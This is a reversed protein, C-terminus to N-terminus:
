DDEQEDCVLHPGKRLSVGLHEALLRTEARRDDDWGSLKEDTKKCTDFAGKTKDIHEELKDELEKIRKFIRFM